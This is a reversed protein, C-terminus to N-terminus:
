FRNDTNINQGFCIIITVYKVLNFVFRQLGETPFNSLVYFKQNLNLSIHKDISSCQRFSFKEM